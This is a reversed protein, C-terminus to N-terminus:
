EHTDKKASAWPGTPPAIGHTDLFEQITPSANLNDGLLAKGAQAPDYWAIRSEYKALLAEGIEIVAQWHEYGSREKYIQKGNCLLVIHTPNMWDGNDITELTFELQDGDVDKLRKLARRSTDLNALFRRSQASVEMMSLAEANGEAAAREISETTPLLVTALRADCSPCNIEFLENFLEEAAQAGTGEWACGPCTWSRQKWDSFYNEISVVM